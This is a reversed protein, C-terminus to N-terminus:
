TGKRNIPKHCSYKAGLSQIMERARQENRARLEVIAADPL